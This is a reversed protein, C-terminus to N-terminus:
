HGLDGYRYIHEICPYIHFFDEVEYEEFRYLLANEEDKAYYTIGGVAASVCPVGVMMAEKLSSSHNEIASPMVFVRRKTYEQALKEQSLSGLWVVNDKIGLKKILKEIYKTYGSKRIFGKFTGDSVQPTGPVYLKLEPYKNKLSGIAKLLVHLGKITYGSATSIISYREAKDIDWKYQSFVKNINIPCRYVNVSPIIQKVVDECWDNECIISGTLKLMEAEKIAQKYFKKQQCLISDRRLVDRFTVSKKLEKLPIGAKYCKAIEGMLGQMYIVSPIDKALRLCCLGHTFETGWIQILDPNEEDLLRQWALINSKKNENYLLPYNDPLAYYTINGDIFKVAKKVKVTTAVIIEYGEKGQFEELLADMWLGSSPKGYLHLSFKNLLSNVIWLVKM